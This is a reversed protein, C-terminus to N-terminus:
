GLFDLATLIRFARYEENLLDITAQMNELWEENVLFPSPLGDSELHDGTVFLYSVSAYRTMQFRANGVQRISVNRQVLAYDESTNVFRVGDIRYEERRFVGQGIVVYSVEEFGELFDLDFRYIEVDSVFIKSFLFDGSANDYVEIEYVDLNTQEEVLPYDTLVYTNQPDILIIGKNLIESTGGRDVIDVFTGITHNGKTEFLVKRTFAHGEYVIEQKNESLDFRIHPGDVFTVNGIFNTTTETKKMEIEYTAQPLVAKFTLENKSAVNIEFRRQDMEFVVQAKGRGRTFQTAAREKLADQMEYLNNLRTIENDLVAIADQFFALQRSAMRENEEMQPKNGIPVFSPAGVPTIEDKPSFVAPLYGWLDIKVNVVEEIAEEFEEKSMVPDDPRITSLMLATTLIAIGLVTAFRFALKRSVGHSTRLPKEIVERHTMKGERFGEKPKVASLIDPVM